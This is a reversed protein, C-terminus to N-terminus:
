IFSNENIEIIKPLKGLTGVEKNHIILIGEFFEKYNEAMELGSEVSDLVENAIKTALSDAISSKDSLVTVSDANGFSISHGIKGSSTSIGLPKNRKKLKFGINNGLINNNSYIQCIIKKSNIIAIDGGNDIISNTSGLNILYDLSMEAITGAVSAMPGINCINSSTNMKQIILPANETIAIKELSYRFEPNLIIYRKLDQRIKYIYKKLNHNVIDTTLNIHTEELDIKM